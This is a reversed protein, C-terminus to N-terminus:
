KVCEKRYADLAAKLDRQLRHIEAFQEAALQALTDHAWAEFYAKNFEPKM